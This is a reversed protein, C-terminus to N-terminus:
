IQIICSAGKVVNEQWMIQECLSEYYMYRSIPNSIEQVIDRASKLTERADDPFIVLICEVLRSARYLVFPYLIEEIFLNHNDREEYARFYLIINVDDEFFEPISHEVCAAYDGAEILKVIDSNTSGQAVNICEVGMKNMERLIRNKNKKFNDFLLVLKAYQKLNNKEKEIPFLVIINTDTKKEM